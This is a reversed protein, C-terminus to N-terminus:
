VSSSSQFTNQRVPTLTSTKRHQQPFCQICWSFWSISLLSKDSGKEAHGNCPPERDLTEKPQVM